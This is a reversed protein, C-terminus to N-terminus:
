TITRRQHVTNHVTRDSTPVDPPVPVELEREQEDEDAEPSSPTEPPLREPEPRPM